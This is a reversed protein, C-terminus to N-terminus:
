NKIENIHVYKNKNDLLTPIIAHDFYTLLQTNQYMMPHYINQHDRTLIITPKCNDYVDDGSYLEVRTTDTMVIINLDLIISTYLVVSSSQYMKCKMDGIIANIHANSQKIKKGININLDLQAILYRVLEEVFETKQDFTYLTHYKPCLLYLISTYFNYLQSNEIIVLDCLQQGSIVPHTVPALTSVHALTTLKPVFKQQLPCLLTAFNYFNDM